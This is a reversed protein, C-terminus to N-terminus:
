KVTRYQTTVSDIVVPLGMWFEECNSKVALDCMEDTVKDCRMNCGWPVNLEQKIMEKCINMFHAKSPNTEADNM